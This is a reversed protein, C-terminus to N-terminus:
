ERKALVMKERQLFNYHTHRLFYLGPVLGETLHLVLDPFHEDMTHDSFETTLAKHEVRNETFVPQAKQVSTILPTQANVNLIFYGLILALTLYKLLYKM